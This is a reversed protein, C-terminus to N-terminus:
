VFSKNISISPHALSPRTHDEFAYVKTKKSNKSVIIRKRIKMKIYSVLKKMAEKIEFLQLVINYLTNAGVALILIGSM